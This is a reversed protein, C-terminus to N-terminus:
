RGRRVNTTAAAVHDALEDLALRARAQEGTLLVDLILGRFTAVVLSTLPSQREVPVGAVALLAAVADGWDGVFGDLFAAYREAEGVALGYVEFCLRHYPLNEPAVFHAWMAQLLVAPQESGLQEAREALVGVNRRRLERLVEAVLQEKTTFHHLLTRHSIGLDAAVARISLGTLGHQLVWAAAADLLAERRGAFRLSRGDVMAADYLDAPVLVQRLWITSNHHQRMSSDGGTGSSARGGLEHSKPPTLTPPTGSRVIETRCPAITLM